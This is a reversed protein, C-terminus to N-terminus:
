GFEISVLVDLVVVVAVGVVVKSLILRFREVGDLSGLEACDCVLKVFCFLCVESVRGGM